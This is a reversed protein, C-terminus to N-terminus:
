PAHFQYGSVMKLASKSRIASYRPFHRKGPNILWDSQVKPIILHIM